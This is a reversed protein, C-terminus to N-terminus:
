DIIGMDRMLKTRQDITPNEAENYKFASLSRKRKILMMLVDFIRNAYAIPYFIFSRELYKYGKSILFRRSPLFVSKLISIRRKKGIKASFEEKGIEERRRLFNEYFGLREVEGFGFTGGKEVDTLIKDAMDLSYDDFDLDFYKVGIGLINKIFNEFKIERLVTFYEEINIEDKYSNIYALLDTIQRIGCGEKVFHKILHATLFYLGDEVGLSNVSFGSYTEINIFPQSFTFKNKLVVDEFRKSYLRVHVEILGGSKDHAEFHHKEKGRPSITMGMNELTTMVTKEKEPPILLDIDGSVRLEPMHYSTAVTCGKLVCYEVGEKDLNDIIKKLCYQKRENTAITKLFIGEWQLSPNEQKPSIVPYVLPFIGQRLALEFIKEYEEDLIYDTKKGFVSQKLVNLMQQFQITM